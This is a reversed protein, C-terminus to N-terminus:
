KFQFKKIIEFSHHSTGHYSKKAIYTPPCNTSRSGRRCRGQRASRASGRQSPCVLCPISWWKGPRCRSRNRAGTIAHVYERGPRSPGIMTRSSRFSNPAGSRIDIRDLLPSSCARLRGCPHAEPRPRDAAHLPHARPHCRGLRRLPQSVPMAVSRSLNSTAEWGPLLQQFLVERQLSQKPLLAIPRSRV